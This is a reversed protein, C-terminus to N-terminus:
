RQDGTTIIWNPTTTFEHVFARATDGETHRTAQWTSHPTTTLSKSRLETEVEITTTGVTQRNPTEFAREPGSAYISEGQGRGHTQDHFEPTIRTTHDNREFSTNFGTTTTAKTAFDLDRASASAGGLITVGVILLGGLRPLTGKGVACEDRDCMEQTHTMTNTCEGTPTAEDPCGDVMDGCEMERQANTSNMDMMDQVSCCPDQPNCATSDLHMLNNTNRM